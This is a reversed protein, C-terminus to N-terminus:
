IREWVISEEYRFVPSYTKNVFMLLEDFKEPINDVTVIFMPPNNELSKLTEEKANPISLVHYAAIFRTAPKM